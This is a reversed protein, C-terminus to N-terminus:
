SYGTDILQELSSFSEVGCEKAVSKRSTENIDYVGSVLLDNQKNKSLELYKLAHLRGMVGTGVVGVKLTM